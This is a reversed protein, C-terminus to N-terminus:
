SLVELALKKGLEFAFNTGRDWPYIHSMSGHFLNQTESIRVPPVHKAANIGVVPQAYADRFVRANVVDDASIEPNVFQMTKLALQTIEADTRYWEASSTDLYDALYVIHEGGFEQSSVFNTHEILALFPREATKRLNYWYFKGVQKKLVFIVVHAGLSPRLVLKSAYHPAVKGCLSAFAGTGTAIVLKDFVHKQGPTSVEWKGERQSVAIDKQEKLINVGNQSLYNEADDFFKQFGGRYTGLEPTRCALRAWFWAMNVKGAWEDGFKGRLLPRWLEEFGEKGMNSECWHQATVQELKKWSKMSKIRALAFAMRFKNIWSLEPYMLLSWPSDLQAFGSQKTEMVTLPRSFVIDNQLGYIKAYEHVFSDSKFWHHYFYELSSNWNPSRFGCALGGLHSNKELLTVKVGRQALDTACAIGTCGGGIIGVNLTM